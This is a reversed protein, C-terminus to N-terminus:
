ENFAGQKNLEDFSYDAIDNIMNNSGVWSFPLAPLLLIQMWTTVANKAKVIYHKQTHNNVFDLTLDYTLTSSAPLLMLTLGSLAAGIMSGDENRIGSLTLTYDPNKQLEGTLGYDAVIDKNKWRLMMSKGLSDLVTTGSFVGNNQGSGNLKQILEGTKLEVVKEKNNPPTIEVKRLMQENVTMCGTLLTIATVVLAKKM